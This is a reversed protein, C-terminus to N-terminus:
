ATGGEPADAYVPRRPTRARAGAEAREVARRSPWALSLLRRTRDSCGLILIVVMTGYIPLHGLLEVDGFFFLTLNFPIGIAVVGVQPMAGSILMLGFFVETAGAIRIFQLDSVGLGLERFVNFHSYEALFKLALDPQALKENFAVVILCVGVAVRLVWAAQAITLPELVRADGREHDVSWRGAGTCVLFAACGLLDIRQVIELLGFQLVAVPGLLILVWAVTRTRWGAFLLIAIFLVAAGLLLSPVDWHLEMPPALFAGLSLMGVLSVGLHMRLIFPTWEALQAVAPVDVGSWWRAAVVRVALTVLLAALLLGITATQFVFGWDAGVDDFVFWTEHALPMRPVM